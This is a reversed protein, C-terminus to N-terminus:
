CDFSMASDKDIWNFTVSSESQSSCVFQPYGKLFETGLPIAAWHNHIVGIAHKRIKQGKHELWTSKIHVVASLRTNRAKGGLGPKPTLLGSHDIGERVKQGAQTRTITLQLKGILERIISEDDLPADIFSLAIVFPLELQKISKYKKVKEQLVRRLQTGGIFRAPPTWGGLIHIKKPVKQPILMLNLNLGCTQYRIEHFEDTALPDFSDLWQAVFEKLAGYDVIEPIHDSQVSVHVLFYHEIRALRELIQDLKRQEKQWLPDDFVTAVEIVIPKELSNGTILLDPEGEDLKPHIDVSYGLEKFFASLVLEYYAGYHQHSSESRLRNQIDPKVDEPLAGFWKEIKNRENLFRPELALKAIIPTTYKTAHLSRRQVEGVWDPAFVRATSNRV